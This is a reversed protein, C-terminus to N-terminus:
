AKRRKLGLMALGGLGFLALTAPAPVATIPTLSADFVANPVLSSTILTGDLLNSGTGPAFEALQGGSYNNGTDAALGTYGTNSSISYGYAANPNLALPSALSIQIYDGNAAATTTGVTGIFTELLTSTTSTAAPANVSYIALKVTAGSAFGGHESLDLVTIGNLNYGKANTGTTFTGGPAAGNNTYYNLGGSSVTIATAATAALDYQDSPGATPVTLGLNSINAVGQPPSTPSPVGSTSFVSAVQSASLATNYIQFNQITGNMMGDGQWASRGLWANTFQPAIATWQNASTLNVSSQSVGDVYYTMTGYPAATTATQDIVVGIQYPNPTGTASPSGALQPGYNDVENNGYGATIGNQSQTGYDLATFMYPNTGGPNATISDAGSGSAGGLPANNFDFGRSHGIVGGTSTVDYGATFTEIFSVTPSATPLAAIPINIYNVGATGSVAGPNNLVAQGGSIYTGNALLAAYSSSGTVADPTYNYSGGGPGTGNFSSTFNWEHVLGTATAQVPSSMGGIALVSAAALGIGFASQFTFGIKNNTIM